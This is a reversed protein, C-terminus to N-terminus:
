YNIFISKVFVNIKEGVKFNNVKKLGWFIGKEYNKGRLIFKLM